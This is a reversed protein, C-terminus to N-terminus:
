AADQTMESVLLSFIGAADRTKRLEGLLQENRLSRAVQALATLHDAGASEPAILAFIIDVPVGDTAEFEIPKELRAFVGFIRGLSAQKAHPIAVGEGVGTSGLSERQWLCEFIDREKLGSVQAAREAIEVLAQKKSSVRLAPLVADAALLYQLSM